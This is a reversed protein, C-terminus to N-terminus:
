RVVIKQVKVDDGNILRLVYVGATLGNTSVNRTTDTSVLIRGMVDVIQLTGEGNVIIHGNSIFAFTENDVDADGCITAFVLKFRSEYDTTKANFTYSAPGQAQRLALLDVDAGTLNDILHLYALEVGETNVSITYTGSKAAKFNLPMEGQGESYAIAYEEHGVPIYINADQTGFYFKELQSGENFSILAKDLVANGRTNAQTLAINLSGNNGTSAQWPQEVNTFVVSSDATAKIVVSECPPIAFNENVFEVGTRTSNLKFYCCNVYADFTYPNGVLNFGASLPVSYSNDYPKTTGTFILTVDESNAYLYGQGNALTDFDSHQNNKFNEWMANAPNLRYLDYTNDIMDGAPTYAESIPSAIFYWGDTNGPGTAASYAGIAKQVTVNAPNDCVLKGGDALTLTPTPTGEFTIQHAQAVCGSGITADASIVVNDNITPVGEPSWNSATAWDGATTFVKTCTTFFTGSWTSVGDGDGCVRRVRVAYDKNANLGTIHYSNTDCTQEIWTYGGGDLTVRIMWLYYTEWYDNNSWESGNESYWRGNATAEGGSHDTCIPLSFRDGDSHMVVWLNQTNDVAVDIPIDIMANVGAFIVSDTYIPNAMDPATTGYCIWLQCVAGTAMYSDYVSIKRINSETYSGAPLLIGAYRNPICSEYVGNDYKIESSTVPLETYTVDFDDGDSTWGLTASTSAINSVILRTPAVCAIETTFDSGVWSSYGDDVCNGRVWFYYKTSAELGTLTTSPTASVVTVQSLEIDDAPATPYTSCYVHWETEGSNKTWSIAATHNTVEDVTLATPPICSPAPTYGFTIKPLFQVRYSDDGLRYVATYATQTKGHWKMEPGNYEANNNEEFYVLLNGDCYPFPSSLTIEMKNDSVSVGGSYVPNNTYDSINIWDGDKFTTFGVEAFYVDYVVNEWSVSDMNSYFTMKNIAGWQISDLDAAPIIFQSHAGQKCYQSSFPVNYNTTDPDDNVTIKYEMVTANVTADAAPMIFTWTGNDNETAPTGNVTVDDTIYCGQELTFTVEVNSAYYTGQNYTVTEASTATFHEPLTLTHVSRAGAVDGNNTGINNTYTNGDKTVSCNRYHNNAISASYAAIVGVYYQGTISAGNLILNKITGSNPQSFFGVYDEDPKDITVNSIAKNDGNFNGYFQNSGSGNGIGDFAVGDMDIDNGLKFYTGSYQNGGNVDNSIKVLQSAYLILYPDQESDGSGTWPTVSWQAYLTVTAGDDPTINPSAQQNTYTTGGGDAQTNWNVFTYGTRTFANANLVGQDYTFSQNSMTGSIVIGNDDYNADFHVTYSNATWQAYLTTAEAIDWNHASTGDANYYQTGGGNTEIYYGGFTYGTKTPITIAPMAANYTATVSETGPNTASQNDLTVTYTNPTWSANFTIAKRTAAEGRYITMPSQILNVPTANPHQGDTYTVTGLTYGTRTPATIQFTNTTVNYTTPNNNTVGNQGNVANTYTIAYDRPDGYTVTLQGFVQLYSFTASFSRYNSPGGYQTVMDVDVDLQANADTWPTAQGTLVSGSTNAMKVHTVYYHSSTLTLCSNGGDHTGNLYFGQFGWFTLHGADQSYVLRLGDDLEVTFGTTNSTNEITVTKEGTHYNFGNNSPTFTLTWRNVNNNAHEAIFTYTVTKSTAWAQLGTLSVLALLILKKKNSRNFRHIDYLCYFIFGGLLALAIIGIIQITTM